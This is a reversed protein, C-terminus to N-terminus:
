CRTQESGPKTNLYVDLRTHPTKSFLDHTSSTSSTDDECSVLSMVGHIPTLSSRWTPRKRSVLQWPPLGHDFTVTRMM